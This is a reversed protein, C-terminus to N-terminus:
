FKGFIDKPQNIKDKIKQRWKPLKKPLIYVEMSGCIVLLLLVQGLLRFSDYFTGVILGILIFIMFLGCLFYIPFSGIRWILPICALVRDLILYFIKEETTVTPLRM